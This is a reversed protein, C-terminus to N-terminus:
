WWFDWQLTYTRNEAYRKWGEALAADIEMLSIDGPENTM